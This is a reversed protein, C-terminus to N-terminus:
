EEALLAVLEAHIAPNAAIMRDSWPTWAAGTWTTVLGGAERVLLAGAASDWPSLRLEWHADLRGCAVYSLDLAASGPRRVGQTRAQIRSFQLANNDHRTGFDYPFGTSVLAAALHPTPSVHIPRENCSAGKGAEAVFLEDRIPDFVVGLIPSDHHVLAISVCFFPFGHAYNNTGDLPDIVWRYEADPKIDSGEEGLIGHKPFAEQIASVILAESARDIATVVEFASKLEVEPPRELGELLLAGARRAIQVVSDRM